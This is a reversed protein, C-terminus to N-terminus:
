FGWYLIWQLGDQLSENEVMAVSYIAM